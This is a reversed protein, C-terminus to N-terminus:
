RRTWFSKIMRPKTREKKIIPIMSHNRNRPRTENGNRLSFSLLSIPAYTNKTIPAKILTKIKSFFIAIAAIKMSAIPSVAEARAPAIILTSLGPLYSLLIFGGSTISTM